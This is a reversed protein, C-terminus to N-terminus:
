VDALTHGIKPIAELPVGDLVVTKEMAEQLIEAVVKADSENCEIVISDHVQLVIPGYLGNRDRIESYRIASRNVISAATSQIRHNVALNLMNRVTYPLEAHDKNGYIKEIKKADVMRRPRGFLNTVQGDRKAIEHSELMMNKVGPFKEFYSDIIEQTEDVSKKLLPSLQWATAGYTSALAFVKSDQRLGRYKVKFNSPLEDKGTEADYINFTEVGIISYFDDRGSFSAKLRADKSFYAFTRPELQSYDAGVFVRGPRAQIVQKIRKDDRPLNQFNPDRSAYRGSTTGHQLFGPRIIGYQMRKEIGEVYTSLLKQKKKYELLRKIWEYKDEYKQLTKTDCMIYAWPEKVKGKISRGMIREFPTGIHNIVEYIFNKKASYSYPIKMGLYGCLEKGKDTLYSFELGLVDFLLWSLQQCSGINFTNKKATGPYRSEVLPTIEKMIFTKAEECEAELQKKLSTLGQQDVKLGSTNLEYTPGRLQPMSEDQYFFKDLKQAYLEPVLEIFLKYTLLADKAGYKALLMPDAKFLEYRAKTLKGGNQTVSAKMEEQEKTSDEGFYQKALEKLGVRRNEDLLHALIMTDTHISQILSVKFNRETIMCDFIANHCILKKSKLDTLLDIIEPCKGVYDKLKGATADWGSIIVYFAKDPEAAISFGIVSDTQSVGTTETDFSVYEKDKLYDRLAKIDLPTEIIVYNPLM